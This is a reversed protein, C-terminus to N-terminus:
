RGLRDFVTSIKSTSKLVGDSKKPPLTTGNKRIKVRGSQIMKSIKSVKHLELSNNQKGLRSKIDSTSKFQKKPFYDKKHTVKNFTQASKRVEDSRMGGVTVKLGLPRNSTRLPATTTTFSVVDPAAYSVPTEGNYKKGLRDFVDVQKTLSALRARKKMANRQNKKPEEYRSAEEMMDSRLSTYKQPVAGNNGSTNVSVAKRSSRIRASVDSLSTVKDAVMRNNQRIVRSILPTELPENNVEPGLRSLIGASSLNNPTFVNSSSQPEGDGGDDIDMPMVEDTTSTVTNGLRKFVSCTDPSTMTTEVTASIDDGGRTRDKNQKYGYGGKVTITKKPKKKEPASESFLEGDEVVVDDEGTTQQKNAKKMSRRDVELSVQKAHKLIGIVDGMAKIGMELLVDRTLDGLISKQIRHSLFKLAYDEAIENPIGAKVFFRIWYTGEKSFDM